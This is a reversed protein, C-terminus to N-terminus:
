LGLTSNPHPPSPQKHSSCLPPPSPCSRRPKSLSPLGKGKNSDHDSGLLLRAPKMAVPSAASRYPVLASAPLWLHLFAPLLSAFFTSLLLSSGVQNWSRRARPFPLVPQPPPSTSTPLIALKQIDESPPALVIESLSSHPHSLSFPASSKLRLVWFSPYGNLAIPRSHSSCEKRNEAGWRGEGHGRQGRPASEHAPEM